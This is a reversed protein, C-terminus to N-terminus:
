FRVGWFVLRSGLRAVGGAENREEKKRYSHELTLKDLQANFILAAFCLLEKVTRERERELSSM